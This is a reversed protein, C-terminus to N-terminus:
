VGLLCFRYSHFGHRSASMFTASSSPHPADHASYCYTCPHGGSVHQPQTSVITDRMVKRRTHLRQRPRRLSARRTRDAYEPIAYRAITTNQTLSNQEARIPPQIYTLEVTLLTCARQRGLATATARTFSSTPKAPPLRHPEAPQRRAHTALTSRRHRCISRRSGPRAPVAPRALSARLMRTRASNPHAVLVLRHASHM